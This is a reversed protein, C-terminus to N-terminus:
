FRRSSGGGGSRGGGGRYSRGGRSRRGGRYSGGNKWAEKIDKLDTFIFIPLWLLAVCVGAVGSGDYKEFAYYSSVAGLALIVILLYNELKKNSCKRALKGCIMLVIYVFFLIGMYDKSRLRDLRELLGMNENELGYESKVESLVAKFGALIGKDWEDNKLFPIMYEDQIRGSKGDPIVGELGYGIELRMLREKRVLLMLVGNNKSKDGIEYANFLATAYEELSVGNLSKLTVVVIQAGSSKELEKNAEIIYKKTEKSLLNASDNVYFDRSAPLLEFAQLFACFVLIVLKKM